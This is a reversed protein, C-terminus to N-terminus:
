RPTVLSRPPAPGGQCRADSAGLEPGTRDARPGPGRRRRRRGRGPPEHLVLDGALMWPNRGHEILTAMKLVAGDVPLAGSHNAAMVAPGDTPINEVGATTVRWYWQYMPLVVSLILWMTDNDRTDATSGHQLLDGASRRWLALLDRRSRYPRDAMPGTHEACYASDDAM